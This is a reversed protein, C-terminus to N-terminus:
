KKVSNIEEWILMIHKAKIAKLSFFKEELGLKGLWEKMKTIAQEGTLGDFDKAIEQAEEFSPYEVSYVENGVKVKYVEEKVVLM